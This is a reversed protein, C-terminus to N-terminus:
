TYAPEYLVAEAKLVGDAYEQRYLTAELDAAQRIAEAENEFIGAPKLNDDGIDELGDFYYYIGTLKPDEGSLGLYYYRRGKGYENVGFALYLLEGNSGTSHPEGMLFGNHIPIKYDQLAQRAKRAPLDEPPMANLMEEYIEATVEQGPDANFTRDQRWQEMTYISGNDPRRETRTAIDDRDIGKEAAILRATEEEEGTFTGRITYAAYEEGTEKNYFIKWLETM